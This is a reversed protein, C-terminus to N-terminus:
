AHAAAALAPVAHFRRVAVWGAVIFFLLLALQVAVFAPENSQTPALANLAPIKQFSQIVGIATNLYLAILATVVYVWRWVGSLKRGYIAFVCIALVILSIVGVARPPDFGFPPIPFGTLSTLVTTLLFFATVGPMPLGNCLGYLVVFGALIAVLSLYVHITTFVAFSLGLVM